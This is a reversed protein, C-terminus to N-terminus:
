FISSVSSSAAFYCRYAYFWRWAASYLKLNCRLAIKKGASGNAFFRRKRKSSKKKAFFFFLLIILASVVTSRMLEGNPFFMDVNKTGAISGGLGM